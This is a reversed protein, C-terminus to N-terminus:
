STASLGDGPLNVLYIRGVWGMAREGAPHVIPEATIDATISQGQYSVFKARVRLARQDKICYKWEALVRDRDAPDIVNVWNMGAMSDCSFGFTREFTTNVRVWRGVEDTEFVPREILDCIADVRAVVKALTVTQAEQLSATRTIKDHLNRGGNPGLQAAMLEVNTLATSWRRWPKKVVTRISVVITGVAILAMALQGVNVVFRFLAGEDM